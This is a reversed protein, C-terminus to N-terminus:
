NSVYYPFHELGTISPMVKELVNLFCSYAKNGCFFNVSCQNHFLNKLSVFSFALFLCFGVYGM